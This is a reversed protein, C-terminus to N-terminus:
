MGRLVRHGSSDRVEGLSSEIRKILKEDTIPTYQTDRAIQGGHRYIWGLFALTQRAAEPDTASRPLLVYSIGVIPWANGNGRNVLIEYYSPRSFKAGAIAANISEDTPAVFQDATTSLRIANLGSGGVRSREVYGIAGATHSVEQVVGENGRVGDGYLWDVRSGIGLRDNWEPSVKALYYTFVFTSGSTDSRHIVKIPLNPLDLGPNLSRLEPANWSSIKGLFIQALVPGSLRLEDPGIGPLNAVPVIASVVLPYQALDDKALDAQTLPVDTM